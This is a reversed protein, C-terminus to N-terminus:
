SKKSTIVTVGAILQKVNSSGCSPCVAAGAKDHQTLSLQIEFTKQCENCQYEYRPM